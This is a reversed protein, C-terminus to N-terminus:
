VKSKAQTAAYHAHLAEKDLLYEMILEHAKFAKVIGYQELKRVVKINIRSYNAGTRIFVHSPLWTAPMQYITGGAELQAVVAQQAKSLPKM